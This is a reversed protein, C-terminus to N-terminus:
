KVVRFQLGPWEPLRGWGTRGDFLAAVGDVDGQPVAVELCDGEWTWGPETDIVFSLDAHDGVVTFTAGPAVLERRLAPGLASAAGAGMQVVAGRRVRRKLRLSAVRLEHLSSGEEKMRRAIEDAWREDDDVSSRDLRTVLLPDDRALLEVVGDTSWARCLELEAATLGVVQLFEIRGYPGALAGLAPDEVVAAATIASDSDLRIPGRLDLNHGAAFPHQSSWVYAALSALFDVAWLPRPPEAPGDGTADAGPRDAVPSAAAGDAAVRFTLEFGWGSVDADPSEKAHLETLGYTVLHWHLPDEVLHLTVAEVPGPGSFRNSPRPHYRGAEPSRDTRDVHDDIAAVGRPRPDSAQNM